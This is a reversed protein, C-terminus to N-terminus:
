RVRPLCPMTPRCCCTAAHCARASRGPKCGCRGCMPRARIAACISMAIGSGSLRRRVGSRALMVRQGVALQEVPCDGDETAILTGAAYCATAATYAADVVQLAGTNDQPTWNPGEGAGVTTPDPEWNWIYVGQLSTNGQAKWATVFAQYLNAQLAPDYTASSTYFPQYAADPASNYGIETFLLPKGITAALGEYYKILSLGGTMALTTPDTPTDEWGAILQALTPDAGGGAEDVDSIAAYEDIGVYDLQSWFSIQTAFNGTGAPLNTGGYQWPSLDTDDIASYTLKGSFVARVDSILTTWYSLYASGALQDLETGIDFLQAGAAQAAKAEAVVDTTYSAFFSSISTPNYYARWETDYYVNGDSGTLTATSADATFDVLPRVLVSLGDKEAAEIAATMDALTETNGTTGATNYDGYVKSTAADIGYDDTLAVANSATQAIMTSLSNASAYSGDVDAVYNFGAYDLHLNSAASAAPLPPPVSAAWLPAALPQLGALMGAASDAAASNLDGVTQKPKQTM